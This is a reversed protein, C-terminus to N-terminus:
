LLLLSWPVRATQHVAIEACSSAEEKGPVAAFKNNAKAKRYSETEQLQLTRHQIQKVKGAAAFGQTCALPTEEAVPRHQSMMGPSSCCWWGKPFVLDTKWTDRHQQPLLNHQSHQCNTGTIVQVGGKPKRDGEPGTPSLRGPTPFTHFGRLARPQPDARKTSQLLLGTPILPSLAGRHPKCLEQCLLVFPCLKFKYISDLSLITKCVGSCHCHISQTLKQLSQLTGPVSGFWLPAEASCVSKPM